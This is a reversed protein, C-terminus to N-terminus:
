LAIITTICKCGQLPTGNRAIPIAWRIREWRIREIHENADHKNSRTREWPTRQITNTGNEDYETMWNDM